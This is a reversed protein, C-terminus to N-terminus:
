NDRFNRVRELVDHWSWSFLFKTLSGELSVGDAEEDITQMHSIFVNLHDNVEFGFTAGILKADIGESEGLEVGSSADLTTEEGGELWTFDLSVFAKQTVDRTLHLELGYLPDQDIELAGTTPGSGFFTASPMIELTTRRGPVWAGLSRLIPMSVRSKWQDSGVNLSESEDYSGTPATLNVGLNVSWGLDYRIYEKAKM